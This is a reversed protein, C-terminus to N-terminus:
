WILYSKTDVGVIVHCGAADRPAFAAGGNALPSPQSASAAASSFSSSPVTVQIWEVKDSGLIPVEVGALSRAVAAM